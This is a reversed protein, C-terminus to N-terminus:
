RSEMKTSTLREKGGGLSGFTEAIFSMFALFQLFCFGVFIVLGTAGCLWNAHMAYCLLEMDPERAQATASRTKISRIM